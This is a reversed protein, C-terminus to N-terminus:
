RRRTVRTNTWRQCCYALMGASHRLLKRMNVRRWFHIPLVQIFGLKMLVSVVCLFKILKGYDMLYESSLPIGELHPRAERPAGTLAHPSGKDPTIDDDCHRARHNIMVGKVKARPTKEM